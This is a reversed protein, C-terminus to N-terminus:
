QKSRGVALSVRDSAMVISIFSVPKVLM